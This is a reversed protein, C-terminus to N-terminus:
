YKMYSGDDWALRTLDDFLINVGYYVPCVVSLYVETEQRSVGVSAGGAMRCAVAANSRRSVSVSSPIQGVRVAVPTSSLSVAAPTRGVSVSAMSSRVGVGATGLQRVQVVPLPHDAEYVMSASVGVNYARSVQCSPTCAEVAVSVPLQSVSVEVCAM